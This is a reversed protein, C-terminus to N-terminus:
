TASEEAACDGDVIMRIAPDQATLHDQINHCARLIAEADLYTQLARKDAAGGLVRQGVMIIFMFLLQVLSSLFLLFPFPYSDFRVVGIQALAMWGFQAVAAIYFAAMSGAKRTIVAALRGNFGVYEDDVRPTVALRQAADTLPGTEVECLVGSGEMHEDQAILHRQIQECERLIAEANTWTAMARKDAAASLVQQGLLIIFILLLQVVNGLFLLFPFPYKDFSLPGTQALLMWIACFASCFYVTWMSGIKATIFGALRANVGLRADHLQPPAYDERRHERHPRAPTYLSM